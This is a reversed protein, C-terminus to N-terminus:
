AAAGTNRREIWRQLALVDDQRYRRHGPTRVTVLRGTAELRRLKSLHVGLLQAAECPRLIPVGDSM